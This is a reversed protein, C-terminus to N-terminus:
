HAETKWFFFASHNTPITTHLTSPTGLDESSTGEGPMKWHASDTGLSTCIHGWTVSRDRWVQPVSQGILAEQRGTQGAASVM